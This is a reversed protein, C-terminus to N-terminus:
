KSLSHADPDFQGPESSEFPRTSQQPRHDGVYYPETYLSRNGYSACGSLFAFSGLFFLLAMRRFEQHTPQNKM